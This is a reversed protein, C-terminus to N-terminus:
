QRTIHRNATGHKSKRKECAAHPKNSRCLLKRGGSPTVQIDSPQVDHPPQVVFVLRHTARHAIVQRHDRTASGRSFADPMAPVSGRDLVPSRLSSYADLASSLEEVQQPTM